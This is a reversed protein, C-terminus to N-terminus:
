LELYNIHFSKEHDSWSGGTSTKEYPAGWGTHSADTTLTTSPHGHSGDSLQMCCDFDGKCLKLASTKDHELSRYYLPGYMVGPFSSIIKGIVRAVDRITPTGKMLSLCAERVSQAKDPTLTISMAVSDIIFGLLVLRQSPISVSKEPHITFGLSDFQMFTDIVNTVCLDYTKALLFLDDIYRSIVHGKKHLLKTFKSPCSSLGNPLCTFQYLSNDWMFRLYKRHSPKVAVSYYADKLDLSAMYCDKEVLKLMSYLTDMKFHHYTVYHNLGKLSLILRHSGDKKPRIFISSLVEGHEHTALEITGKSLLKDIENVDIETSSFNIHPQSVYHPPADFEITAGKATTLIDRDSTIEQWNDMFRSVCGASFSVCKNNLYIKLIPFTNVSKKINDLSQIM